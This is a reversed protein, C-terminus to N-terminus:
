LLSLLLNILFTFAVVWHSIYHLQQWRSFPNDSVTMPDEQPSTDMLVGLYALHFIAVLTLVINTLNVLLNSQTHTHKPCRVPCLRAGLCASFQSSLKLRVSHETYTYFGLSLLVAALKANLGHLLSSIFYTAMIATFAGWRNLTTKFVYTKLFKHIPVNWHVVVEALSRPLEINWPRSVTVDQYGSLTTGAEAVSSVFYHSTRFILADRYVIWWGGWSDPVLFEILCTSLVFYVVSLFSSFIGNFIWWYNENIQEQKSRYQAFSVWPGWICSGPCLTYGAYELLDIRLVSQTDLDFAISIIKMAAIMQPGRIKMWTNPDVLFKECAVLYLILLLGTIYGRKRGTNSLILIIFYGIIVLGITHLISWKFYIYLMYIGIAGSLFHSTDPTKIANSVIRCIMCCCFLILLNTYGEMVTPEICYKYLQGLEESSIKLGSDQAYDDYYDEDEYEDLDFVPEAM